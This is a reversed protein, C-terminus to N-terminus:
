LFRSSEAGVTLLKYRLVAIKTEIAPFLNSFYTVTPHLFLGIVASLILTWPVPEKLYFLM